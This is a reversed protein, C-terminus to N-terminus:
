IHYPLEYGMKKLAAILRHVPLGMVNYYDGKIGSIGVAGIWEQIAYAGAKDFPHHKQIYYDIMSTDLHGFTVETTEYFSDKGSPTMICIGTIVQHTKTSLQQLMSCAEEANHPKNLITGHQDVVITDAGIVYIHHEKSLKVFTAASKREALTLVVQEPTDNNDYDEPAYSPMIVFPLEALELLQARRSSNSALIIKNM